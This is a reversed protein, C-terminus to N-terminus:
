VPYIFAILRWFIQLIDEEEINQRSLWLKFDFYNIKQESSMGRRKRLDVKLNGV